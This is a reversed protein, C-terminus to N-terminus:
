SHLSTFVSYLTQMKCCSLGIRRQVVHYIVILTHLHVNNVPFLPAPPLPAVITHLLANNAPVHSHPLLTAAITHLRANNTPVLHPPSCPQLPIFAYSSPPASPALSCHYSPSSQQCPCPPTPPLPTAITHLCVNNALVLPAPPLVAARTHTMM